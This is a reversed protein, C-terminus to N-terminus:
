FGILNLKDFSFICAWVFDNDQTIKNKILWEVQSHLVLTEKLSEQRDNKHTM